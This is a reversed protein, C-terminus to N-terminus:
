KEMWRGVIEQAAFHAPPTLPGPYSASSIKGSTTCWYKLMPWEDGPEWGARQVALKSFNTLAQSHPLLIFYMNGMYLQEYKAIERHTSVVYIQSASTVQGSTWTGFNARVMEEPPGRWFCTTKLLWIYVSNSEGHSCLTLVGPLSTTYLKGQV